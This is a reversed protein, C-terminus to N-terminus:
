GGRHGGDVDDVGDGDGDVGCDSRRLRLGTSPTVGGGDNDKGDDRAVAAVVAAAAGTAPVPAAEAAVAVAAPGETVAVRASAARPRWAATVAEPRQAPACLTRDSGAACRVPPRPRPPLRQLLRTCVEVDTAAVRAPRAGARCDLVATTRSL